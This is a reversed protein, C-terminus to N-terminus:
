IIWMPPAKIIIMILFFRPFTALETHIPWSSSAIVHDALLISLQESFTMGNVVGLSKEWRLSSSYLFLKPCLAVVAVVLVM